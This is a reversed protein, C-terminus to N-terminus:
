DDDDDKKTGLLFSQQDLKQSLLIGDDESAGDEQLYYIVVNEYEYKTVTLNNDPLFNPDTDIKQILEHSYNPDDRGLLEYALDKEEKTGIILIKKPCEDPTNKVMENVTFAINHLFTDVNDVLLTPFTIKGDEDIVPKTGIM